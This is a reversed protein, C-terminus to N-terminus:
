KNMVCVNKMEIQVDSRYVCNDIYITKAMKYM